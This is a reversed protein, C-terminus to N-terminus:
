IEHHTGCLPCNDPEYAGHQTCRGHETCVARYEDSDYGFREGVSKIMKSIEITKM